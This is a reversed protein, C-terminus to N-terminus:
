KLFILEMLLFGEKEKNLKLFEQLLTWCLLNEQDLEGLFVLKKIIKFKLPFIRFFSHFIRGIDFILIKLKLWGKNLGIKRLYQSFIIKRKRVIKLIKSSGRFLVSGKPWTLLILCLFISLWLCFLLGIWVWLWWTM